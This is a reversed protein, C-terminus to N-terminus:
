KRSTEMHQIKRFVFDGHNFTQTFQSSKTYQVQAIITYESNRMTHVCALRGTQRNLKGRM